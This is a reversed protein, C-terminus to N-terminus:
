SEEKKKGEEQKEEAAGEEKEEAKEEGEKEGEVEVEGVEEEPAEELAEIEEATRPAAVSVIVQDPEGLSETGEPLTINELLIKDDFSKLISIDVTIEKPLKLPLGEIEIDYANKLLIGGLEQVAPAEGEFVLPLSVRISKDLRVKYFDVHIFKDTLIDRAPEQILVPFEEESTKDQKKEEKEVKLNVLTGPGAHNYLEAFGRYPVEVIFSEIGPGYVVGPLLGERRLKKVKKGKASRPQVNLELM